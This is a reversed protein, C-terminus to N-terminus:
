WVICFFAFFKEETVNEKEESRKTLCSPLKIRANKTEKIFKSINVPM